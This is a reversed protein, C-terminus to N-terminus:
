IGTALAAAGLAAVFATLLRPVLDMPEVDTLGRGPRDIAHDDLGPFGHRWGAGAAPSRDAPHLASRRIVSGRRVPLDASRIAPGHAGYVVTAASGHSRQGSPSARGA